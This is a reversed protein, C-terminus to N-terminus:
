GQLARDATKVDEALPEPSTLRREEAPPAVYKTPPVPRRSDKPRDKRPPDPQYIRFGYGSWLNKRYIVEDYEIENVWRAVEDNSLGEVREFHVESFEKRRHNSVIQPESIGYREHKMWIPSGVMLEFTALQVTDYLETHDRLFNVSELMDEETEGPIGFIMFLHVKIGVEKADRLVRWVTEVNTGKKIVDQMRQSMSELGFFFAHCGADKYQQMREKTLGEEIRLMGAWKADIGTELILESMGDLTPFYMSEDCLFFSRVGHKEQITHMDEVLKEASRDRMKGVGLSWFHACFTCKAWYCGRNGMIPLRVPRDLYKDLPLDDFDPAALIDIDRIRDRKHEVREGDKMYILNPIDEFACEGQMHLLIKHLADEGEYRVVYDFTGIVKDELWESDYAESVYSGGLLVKCKLGAERIAEALIIAPEYQRQVSVSMGVVDYGEARIKPIVESDYFARLAKYGLGLYDHLLCGLWLHVKYFIKRDRNSFFKPYALCPYYYAGMLKLVGNLTRRYRIVGREPFQEYIPTEERFRTFFKLDRLQWWRLLTLMLKAFTRLFIRKWLKGPKGMKALEQDFLALIRRHAEPTMSYYYLELDLDRQHTHPFGYQKLHGVLAPAGMWPCDCPSDGPPLVLLTRLSSQKLRIM